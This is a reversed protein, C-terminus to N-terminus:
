NNVLVITMPWVMAEITKLLRCCCEEREAINKRMEIMEEECSLSESM